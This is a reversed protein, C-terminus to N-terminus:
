IVFNILRGPVFIINKIKKGELYNAVKDSALAIKEAQQQTIGVEVKITDRFKGNVQVVLSIEQEKILDQDYEPWPELSISKKFGMEQWLEEALHPAFPSLILLFNHAVEQDFRGLEIIKNTLIMMASIATNYDQTEIDDGVKKITQHILTLLSDDAQDVSEVGGHYISWIRELFRKVGVVGNTDWPIAQDFPGMFMEYVRFTDAGFEKIVEDPNVVNGRSKSMKEGGAGLIMGHSTRKLYPESGCSQPIAGIDYLFKYVFRSYLLHLTTHEMGGNYWDVPAWYALKEAGALAKNNRPDLYRLFYWNSGAWNPMTDTERRAKGGCKPCKTNVWDEILALPSQGDDTPEYNKVKPLQLPLDKEPVMVWGDKSAGTSKCNDCYVMPIPEGWYRQRSFVWDRLKYNVAAQGLGQTELWQTIKIIAQSVTLGTFQGSNVLVGQDIDAYANESIDGGAVVEIIPLDYKKAFDYDRQDHAPVAMIAGTGYSMLVYDAVWIPIKRGNVPNVVYAGSFVGTKEKALESRELDSKRKAQKVYETVERAQDSSVIKELLPHEPSVVMFTAGFLTDPRTTYVTLNDDGGELEFRIEAGESRGIWNIQQTKIKELYDVKELDDILRDAYKTIKLMWQEKERKEVPGGCRECKGNVVEENALGIKCSLCWNIPIKTKYALGHEYMRLFIWQTWKYYQPDTTSIVREWDFSFGLSKLQQTFTKINKETTIAPHIGTKIAYNESPLGFADFGIPYLVNYGQMRRKRALIDLATYSRPHGVHLGEGSPYPFEILCYFKEKD